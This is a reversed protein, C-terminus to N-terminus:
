RSLINLILKYHKMLKIQFKYFEKIFRKCIKLGINELIVRDLNAEMVLKYIKLNM